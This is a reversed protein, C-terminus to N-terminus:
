GFRLQMTFGTPNPIFTFRDKFPSDKNYTPETSNRKFKIFSYTSYVALAGTLFAGSYFFIRNRKFKSNYTDINTKITGIETSSISLNYLALEDIAQDRFNYMRLMVTGTYLASTLTLALPATLSKHFENRYEKYDYEYQVYDNNHVPTVEVDTTKGSEITFEKNETVYGPSWIEATYNGPPLSDKFKKLYLTDNIVVEFYGNDVDVLFRVQGMEQASVSLTSTLLIIALFFKKM